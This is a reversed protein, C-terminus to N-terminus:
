SFLSMASLMTKKMFSPNYKEIKGGENFLFKKGDVILTFQQDYLSKIKM